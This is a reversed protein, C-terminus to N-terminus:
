QTIIPIMYREGCRKCVGQKSTFSRGFRSSKISVSEGPELSFLEEGCRCVINTFARRNNITSVGPVTFMM